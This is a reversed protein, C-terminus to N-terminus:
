GVRRERKERMRKIVNATARAADEATILHANPDEKRAAKTNGNKQMIIEDYTDAFRNAMIGISFISNFWIHSIAAAEFFPALYKQTFDKDHEWTRGNVRMKEKLRVTVKELDALAKNDWSFVDPQLGNKVQFKERAKEYSKCAMMQASFEKEKKPPNPPFQPTNKEEQMQQSDASINPSFNEKTNKFTSKSIYKYLTQSTEDGGEQSTEDGGRSTEDGRNEPSLVLQEWKKTVRKRLPDKKDKEILGKEILRKCIRIASRGTVNISLGIENYGIETFKKSDGYLQSGGRVALIQCVAYEHLDLNAEHLIATRIMYFPIM